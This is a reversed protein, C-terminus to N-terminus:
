DLTPPKGKAFAHSRTPQRYCAHSNFFDTKGFGPEFHTVLFTDSTPSFRKYPKRARRKKPASEGANAPSIAIL